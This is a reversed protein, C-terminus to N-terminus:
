ASRIGFLASGWNIRLLISMSMSLSLGVTLTLEDEDDVLLLLKLVVLELMLSERLLSVFLEEFNTNAWTSLPLISEMVCEITSFTKSCKSVFSGDNSFSTM